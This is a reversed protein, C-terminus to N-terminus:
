MSCTQGPEVILTDKPIYVRDISAFLSSIEKSTVDSTCSEVKYHSRVLSFVSGYVASHKARGRIYFAQRCKAQLDENAFHLENAARICESPFLSHLCCSGSKDKEVLIFGSWIRTGSVKQKTSRVMRASSPVTAESEGCFRGGIRYTEM